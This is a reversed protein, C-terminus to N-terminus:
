FGGSIAQIKVVHQVDDVRKVVDWNDTENVPGDSAVGNRGRGRHRAACEKPPWQAENARERRLGILGNGLLRGQCRHRPEKVRLAWAPGLGGLRNRSVM